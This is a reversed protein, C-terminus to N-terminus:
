DALTDWPGFHGIPVGIACLRNMRSNKVMLRCSPRALKVCRAVREPATCRQEANTPDFSTKAVCLTCVCRGEAVRM